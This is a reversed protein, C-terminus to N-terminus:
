RILPEFTMRAQATGHLEHLRGLVRSQRLAQEAIWRESPTTNWEMWAQASQVQMDQVLREVFTKPRPWRRVRYTGEELDVREAAVRVATDLGGLLDVLGVEQARRGTWVRGQAIEDVADVTLQRGSAVHRLFNQYTDDLSARLMNREVPELEALPSGFDAYPATQVADFTIGLDENFFGSADFLVAFVGISGTITLPDAVITDAAASIWYGGSAAVDGMSVIVPKKQQTLEIERYIAESAAASGGPSNVRVVVAQVDEDERIDQMAERFDESGLESVEGTLPDRDGSGPVIAGTAYLVAIEGDNGVELGADADPISAYRSVGITEFDTDLAVGYRKKLIDRVEDQYKIADLFGARQAVDADLIPDSGVRQRLEDVQLGRAQAIAELYVSEVDDLIAQLQEENEESLDRRLFPEVASKYKGARVIQPEIHLKELLGDVFAYQSAFGNFEFFSEPQAYISDAATALFYATESMGFDASSAVLPKGSERYTLLAARAEQLTAWSTPGLNEIQLWVGSIREDVAAQQLANRLELLGYRPMEGFVQGLPSEVARPPIPGDIKVVLTSGDAVSPETDASAALGILFVFGLLIVLGIAVLAGLTSAVLNSLFRM